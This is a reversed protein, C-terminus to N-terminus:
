NIIRVNKKEPYKTCWFCKDSKEGGFYLRM